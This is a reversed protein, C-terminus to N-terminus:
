TLPEARHYISSIYTFIWYWLHIENYMTYRSTVTFNIVPQSLWITRNNAWWTKGHSRKNRQCYKEWERHDSHHRWIHHRRERQIRGQLREEGSRGVSYISMYLEKSADRIYCTAKLPHHGPWRGKTWDTAEEPSEEQLKHFLGGAEPIM